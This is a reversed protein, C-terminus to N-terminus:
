PQEGDPLQWGGTSPYPPQEASQLSQARYDPLRALGASFRELHAKGAALAAASAESGGFTHVREAACALLAYGLAGRTLLAQYVLPFNSAAAGDLGGLLWSQAACAALDALAQRLAEDLEAANWVVGNPDHLASRLRTILEDRDSM